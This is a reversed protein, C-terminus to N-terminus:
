RKIGRSHAKVGNESLNALTDPGYKQEKQLSRLLDLYRVARCQVLESLEKVRRQDFIEPAFDVYEFQFGSALKRLLEKMQEPKSTYEYCLKVVEEFSEGVAPNRNSAYEYIDDYEPMYMPLLAMNNDYIPAMGKVQLTDNDILLSINGMHRDTNVTLCDLLLMQVAKEVEEQGIIDRCYKLLEEYNTIGLKSASIMGTQETTLLDCKTVISKVVNSTGPLRREYYMLSYEVYEQIGMAKELQNVYVESFPEKGSNVFGHSGAKLMYIKEGERIWCRDFSGSTHYEPSLHRRKGVNRVDAEASMTFKSLYESFSNQFLSVEEWKLNSNSSKVWFTDFLSACNTFEIHDAITVIGLNQMLTEAKKRDMLVNRGTLWQEFTRMDLPLEGFIEVDSVTEIVGGVNKIDFVAILNDKNWLQYM